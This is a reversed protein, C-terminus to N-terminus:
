PGKKAMTRKWGIGKLKDLSFKWEDLTNVPNLGADFMNQELLLDQQWPVKTNFLQYYDVEDVYGM